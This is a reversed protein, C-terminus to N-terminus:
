LAPLKAEGVIASNVFTQSSLVLVATAAHDSVADVKDEAVMGTEFAKLRAAMPDIGSADDSV